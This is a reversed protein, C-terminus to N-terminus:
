RTHACAEVQQQRNTASAISGGGKTVPVSVITSAQPQGTIPNVHQAQQAGVSSRNCLSANAPSQGKGAPNTFAQFPTKQAHPTRGPRPFRSARSAAPQPATLTTAYPGPTQAGAPVGLAAFILVAAFPLRMM